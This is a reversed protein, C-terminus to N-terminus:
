WLKLIMKTECKEMKTKWVTLQLLWGSIIWCLAEVSLNGSLMSQHCSLHCSFNSASPWRTFSLMFQIWIQCCVMWPWENCYAEDGGYIRPSPPLPHPHPIPPPPPPPYRCPGFVRKRGCQIQFAFALIFQYISFHYQNMDGLLCNWLSWWFRYRLQFWRKHLFQSVSWPLHWWDM